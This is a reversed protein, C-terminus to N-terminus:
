GAARYSFDGCGVGDMDGRLLVHESYGEVHHPVKRPFEGLHVLPLAAGSQLGTRRPWHEPIIGSDASSPLAPATGSGGLNRLCAAPFSPRTIRPADVTAMTAIAATTITARITSM